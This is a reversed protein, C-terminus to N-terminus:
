DRGEKGEVALRFGLLPYAVSRVHQSATSLGQLWSVERLHYGGDNADVGPFSRLICSWSRYGLYSYRRFLKARVQYLFRCFDPVPQHYGIDSTHIFPGERSALETSVWCLQECAFNPHRSWAWFGKTIFGRKADEPTWQINVGIWENKDIEGTAKYKQFSQHQNDATLEIANTVLGIVFLVYDSTELSTHPQKAVEYVPLAVAFLILNQIIAKLFLTFIMFICISSTKGIFTLNLFHFFWKPVNKRLIPWRYDEESLNFFGRRYTNYNLRVSWVFQVVNLLAQSGRVRFRRVTLVLMLLARPSYDASLEAPANEPLYPLIGLFSSTPWLPLLAFYTAYVFPLIAWLRDVQSVNGTIESVVYCIATVGAM